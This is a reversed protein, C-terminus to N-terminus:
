PSEYKRVVSLLVNESRIEGVIFNAARRRLANSLDNVM